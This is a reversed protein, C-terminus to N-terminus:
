LLEERPELDTLTFFPSESLRIAARLWVVTALSQRRFPSLDDALIRGPWFSRTLYYISLLKCWRGGVLPRQEYM